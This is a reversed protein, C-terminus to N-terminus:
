RDEQFRIDFYDATEVMQKSAQTYRPEDRDFPPLLFLGPLFAALAILILFLSRAAGLGGVPAELRAENGAAAM